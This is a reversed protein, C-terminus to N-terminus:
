QTQGVLELLGCRQLYEDGLSAVASALLPAQHEKEQEMIIDVLSQAMEHAMEAVDITEGSAMKDQLYGMVVENIGERLPKKMEM